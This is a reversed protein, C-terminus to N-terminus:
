APPVNRFRAHWREGLYLPCVRLHTTLPRESFFELVIEMLIRPPLGGEIKGLAQRLFEAACFNIELALMEAVGSRVLDIIRDPLDEQRAAHASPSDDRFGAGTLMADGGSGHRRAEAQVAFNKHAFLVD